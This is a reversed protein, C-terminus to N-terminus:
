QSKPAGGRRGRWAHRRQALARGRESRSMLLRAGPAAAPAAPLRAPQLTGRRRGEDREAVCNRATGDPGAALGGRLWEGPDTVLDYERESGATWGVITKSTLDRAMFEEYVSEPETPVGPADVFDRNRAAFALLCDDIRGSALAPVLSRGPVRTGDRGGFAERDLELLDNVTPAMNITRALGRVRTPKVRGPAYVIWPVRMVEDHLHNGHLDFVDRLALDSPLREGWSEGHDAVLVVVDANAADLLPPLWLESFEHVALAYLAKVRECNARREAPDTASLLTLISRCVENWTPLPLKRRLYPVHTWWYHVFAFYDRHRRQRFWALMAQTDQSSGVVGAEPCACFLHDPAFVFRRRRWDRTAARM